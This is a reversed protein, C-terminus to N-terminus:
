PIERGLPGFKFDIKNEALAKSIQTGGGCCIVTFYEAAIDRLWEIVKKSSIMDGSIKVFATKM